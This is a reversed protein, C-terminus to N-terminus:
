KARDAYSIIKTNSLDAGLNQFMIRALEMHEITPKYHGSYAELFALTFDDNLRFIGASDVDGYQSFSSHTLFATADHHFDKPAAFIKGGFIVFLYDTNSKAPKGGVQLNSNAITIEYGGLNEPKIQLVFKDTINEKEINGRWKSTFLPITKSDFYRHAPDVIEPIYKPAIYLKNLADRINTLYSILEAETLSPANFNHEIGAQEQPIFVESDPSQKQFTFAFTVAGPGPEITHILNYPMFYSEAVALINKSSARVGVHEHNNLPKLTYDDRCPCPAGEGSLTPMLSTPVAVCYEDNESDTTREFVTQKISSSLIKSFFDWKHRHPFERKGEAQWIHLRLKWDADIGTALVVKVFGTANKYSAKTIEKILASSQLIEDLLDRVFERNVSAFINNLELGRKQPTSNNKWATHAQTGLMKTKEYFSIPTTSAKISEVTSLNPTFISWGQPMESITQSSLSFALLLLAAYFYKQKM